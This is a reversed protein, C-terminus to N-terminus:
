IFTVPKIVGMAHFITPKCFLDYIVKFYPILVTFKKHIISNNQQLNCHDVYSQRILLWIIHMSNTTNPSCFSHTQGNWKHGTYWFFDPVMSLPTRRPATIAPVGPERVFTSATNPVIFRSYTGIYLVISRLPWLALTPHIQAWRMCVFLHKRTFFLLAIGYCAM